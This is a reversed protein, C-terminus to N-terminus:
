PVSVFGHDVVASDQVLTKHIPVHDRTFTNMITTSLGAQETESLVREDPSPQRNHRDLNSKSHASKGFKYFLCDIGITTSRM